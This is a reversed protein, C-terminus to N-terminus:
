VKKKKGEISIYYERHWFPPNRQRLSFEMVPTKILNRCTPKKRVRMRETSNNDYFSRALLYLLTQPYIENKEKAM